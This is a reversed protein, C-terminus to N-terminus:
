PTVKYWGDGFQEDTELVRIPENVSFPIKLLGATLYLDQPCPCAGRWTFFPPSVEDPNEPQPFPDISGCFASPETRKVMAPYCGLFSLTSVEFQYTGWIVFLAKDEDM